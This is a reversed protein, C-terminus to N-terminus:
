FNRDLQEPVPIPNSFIFFQGEEEPLATDDHDNYLNTKYEQEIVDTGNNSYVVVKIYLVEESGDLFLSPLFHISPLHSSGILKDQIYFEYRSTNENTSIIQVTQYEDPQIVAGFVPLIIKLYNENKIKEVEDMRQNLLIGNDKEWEQIAYEWYDYQPDTKYLPRENVPDKKNLYYLISHPKNRDDWWVGSLAPPQTPKPQVNKTFKSQPSSYLDAAKEMIKHFMSSLALGTGGVGDIIPDGVPNGGWVVVIIDPNYGVVWIDRSNNTTGTKAAVSYKDFRLPSYLGFAPSRAENDSLIDNIDQAVGTSLVRRKNIQSSVNWRYEVFEGDNAFITYADGLELPSVEGGGLVLTLGYDGSNSLSTIGASKVLEIVDPLGAIYMAKVAAINISQALADRFSVPGHFKKNYNKPLYCDSNEKVIEGEDENGDEGENEEETYTIDTKLCLTSFQTPVDFLTTQPTFGRELLTAYVFPKFTSGPQRLSTTVNVEGDVKIDFYDKSGLMTLIDGTKASLIIVATNKAGYREELKPAFERVVEETHQQLELDLTTRITKGQLNRLTDGYKNELHNKVFFVFHPAKVSFINQKQFYVNENSASIFQEQNIFGLSLMRELTYNKRKELDKKNSRYPSLRTPANPIAALYAAEAVSIDKASKGFFSNAAEGVGYIVGGYSINNFYFSLIEEKSYGSELKIALVFEKLKRVVDKENTLLLNKVVQQTITSGGQTFNGSRLNVLTARLLAGFEVGGHNFFNKDEIAITANIINKSIDEYPIHKRRKNESFDFLFKDNRDTIKISETDGVLGIQEIDPLPTFTFFLIISGTVVLFGSVTLILLIKLLNNKKIITYLSM